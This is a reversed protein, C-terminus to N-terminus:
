RSVSIGVDAIGPMIERKMNHKVVIHLSDQENLQMESVRFHYQYYSVGQGRTAGTKDFLTCNVTDAYHQPALKSGKAKHYVTQEVVLTLSQFPYDGNIRLGVNTAYRGATKIPPVDYTLEEEKDWGTIPTHRYHDYVMNGTCSACAVLITM